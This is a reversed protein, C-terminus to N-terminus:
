HRPPKTTVANIAGGLLLALSLVYLYLMLLIVAGLSGYTRNYHNFHAAYLSFGVSILLWLLMVAATGLSMWHFPQTEAPLWNYVMTLIIWMLALLIPWRLLQMALPGPPRHLWVVGLWRILEGGLTAIILATVMLLGFLVGIGLSLLITKWFKRTPTMIQYVHNLADMLQRMAGSMAAVFGAAGVSLLAPSRFRSAEGITTLILRRLTGPILIGVPGQLYNKVSPLHLMGLLAALFLLLPFLAFLFNYALAAAYSSMDAKQIRGVLIRAWQVMLTYGEQSLNTKEPLRDLM